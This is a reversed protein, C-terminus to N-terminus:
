PSRVRGRLLRFLLALAFVGLLLLVVKVLTM